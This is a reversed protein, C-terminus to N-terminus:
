SQDHALEKFAARASSRRLNWEFWSSEPATAASSCRSDPNGCVLKIVEARSDADLRPLAAVLAPLGNIGTQALYDRDLRGSRAFRELNADLIWASYNWYGLVALMALAAVSVRWCFRAADMGRNLEAALLVVTVALFGIYLRVGIRLETYGYAGEYAALRYYASALLVLCEIVVVASLLGVWRERAGRLARRDLLALVAAVFAVVLSMETFGRHVAEALTVGSGPRAGPNGFLYSLQLLLFVGLLAAIAGQVIGREIDTHRAGPERRGRWEIPRSAHRRALNLYGLCSFAVVLGFIVRGLGSLNTLVHVVGDRFAGFSPDAEGLLAVLIALIPVALAVGRLPPVSEETGLTSVGEGVVRTAERAILVPAVFPAGALRGAGLSRPPLGGALCTVVAGLWLLGVFLLFQIGPEATIAAAGSLVCALGIAAYRQSFLVRAAPREVLLLALSAGVVLLPWSLGPTGDCLMAAAAAGLVGSSAWLLATRPPSWSAESSDFTQKSTSQM